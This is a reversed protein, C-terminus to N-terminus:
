KIIRWALISATETRLVTDWLSIIEIDQWLEQYDKQSLWWEPWIIWITNQPFEPKWNVNEDSKDFVVINKWKIIESINKKFEINPLYRWRSQELAEKSISNIRNIKKENRTRIVSRDSPRFYINKIWIETLKQVILEMKERKNSMAIAIWKENKKWEYKITQIINGFITDTDRDYIELEHRINGEQVFIHDWNKMRLVKRIQNLIETNKITINDWNTNFNTLFLQMQLTILELQKHSENAHAHYIM